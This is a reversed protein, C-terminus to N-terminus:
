LGCKQQIEPMNRSSGNANPPIDIADGAGHMHMLEHILVTAGGNLSNSYKAFFDDGVWGFPTGIMANADAGGGNALDNLRNWAADNMAPLRDRGMAVASPAYSFSAVALQRLAAGSNGFLGGCDQKLLAYSVADLIQALTRSQEVTAFRGHAGMRIVANQAATERAIEWPDDAPGQPEPQQPGPEGGTGGGLGGGVPPAYCFLLRGQEDRVPITGGPCQVPGEQFNGTADTSNVPDAAVYSYRNLSAPKVLIMRGKDPSNFRGGTNSYYRNMAYDLGSESDRQYTTFKKDNTTPQGNDTSLWTEGYPLTRNNEIVTGNATMVLVASGLKDTTHYFCKDTSTAVTATSITNSTTFESIIGGPGYFTYTTETSAVKKMRRGDGDYVYTAAGGDMQTIQNEANFTYNHLGDNTQNGALDYSNANNRNNTYAFSQTGIKATAFGAPTQALRNGWTDFTWGIGWLNDSSTVQNLRYISDYSYAASHEPQVADTRSLVRGTNTSSTGYDYTFNMLSTGSVSATIGTMQLRSNYAYTQGVGNGLTSATTEGAANYTLGSILTTGTPPPPPASNTLYRIIVIGSGGNGGAGAYGSGGGGGGTNALGGGGNQGSNQNTGAGAGAGGAAGPTSGALIGAGGGAGYTVSTGSISSVFGSGGNGAVSGTGTVGASTAGGGGGGGRNGASDAGGGGNNGQGPTGAGFHSPLDDGVAGGGSGGSGYSITVSDASGGHRGGYAILSGFSSNSGDTADVSASGAVGGSGVTVNYVQSTVALAANYLVGGGGGGGGRNHGGGGGGGAVLMEVTGSGNPIFSGPSTFTHITYAGSTTVTGGTASFPPPPPAGTGTADVVSSLRSNCCGGGTAYNFNVVRGSPYTMSTLDGKINYGYGTTFTGTIGTLTRQEQTLRNMNDYSYTVSGLDDTTSTKLGTFTSQDYVTTILGTGPAQCTGSYMKKTQRHLGDYCNTVTQNRADTKSALLGESDYTFTTAGSEPLTQSTLRGLSDYVWTRTQAGQASQVLKDLVNYTYTTVLPTTLAPNPEEVQILHGVGDYTYRRQNGAEDTVTTQNNSYTYQVSSGDPAATILPRDIGDYTSVTWVATEAARRPNSTKWRRGKADYQTDIYITGEPDNTQKQTERYLGDYISTVTGVNNNIDVRVQKTAQPAIPPTAAVNGDVYSYHTWGVNPYNVATQRNMSDYTMTSVGGRVDTTQTVLGTNFDYISDVHAGTADTVKAPYAFSNSATFDITTAHCGPDTTKVANGLVDYQKKTVLFTTGTVWQNIATVNARVGTPSVWGPITGSRGVLANSITSGGCSYDAYNDYEYETKAILTGDAKHVRDATV